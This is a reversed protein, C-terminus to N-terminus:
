LLLSFIFFCCLPGNSPRRRASQERREWETCVDMLIASFVCEAERVAQVAELGDGAESVETIGVQRLKLAVVRRNMPVDDVVLM